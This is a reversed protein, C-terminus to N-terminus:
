LFHKYAPVYLKCVTCIMIQHSAYKHIMYYVYVANSYMYYANHHTVITYMNPAYAHILPYLVYTHIYTHICIIRIRINHHMAIRIRISYSVNCCIMYYVYACNLERISYSINVICISYIM